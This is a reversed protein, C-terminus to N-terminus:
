KVCLQQRRIRRARRADAAGHPRYEVRLKRRPLAPARTKTGTPSTPSSRARTARRTSSTIEQATILYAESVIGELHTDVFSSRRSALMTQTIPIMFHQMTYEIDTERARGDEVRVDVRLGRRRLLRRLRRALPEGPASDDGGLEALLADRPHAARPKSDAGPVPAEVVVVVVVGPGHPVADGVADDNRRRNIPPRSTM